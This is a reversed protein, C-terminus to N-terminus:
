VKNIRENKNIEKWRERSKKRCRHRNTERYAQLKAKHKM